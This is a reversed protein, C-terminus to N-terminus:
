LEKMFHYIESAPKFEKKIIKALGSRMTYASLWRCNLRKAEQEVAKFFKNAYKVIGKGALGWVVLEKGNLQLNKQLIVVGMQRGNSAKIEYLHLRGECLEILIQRLSSEYPDYKLMTIISGMAETKLRLFSVPKLEWNRKNAKVM